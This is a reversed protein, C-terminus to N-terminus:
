RRAPFYSRAKRRRPPEAKSGNVASTNEITKNRLSSLTSLSHKAPPPAPVNHTRSNTSPQLCPLRNNVQSGEGCKTPEGNDHTKPFYKELATELRGLLALDNHKTVQGLTDVKNDVSSHALMKARRAQLHDYLKRHANYWVHLKGTRRTDELFAAVHNLTLDHEHSSITKARKKVPNDISTGELMRRTGTVYTSFNNAVGMNEESRAPSPESSSAM